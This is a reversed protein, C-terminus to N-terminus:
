DPFSPHHSSPRLLGAASLLPFGPAIRGETTFSLVRRISICHHGDRGVSCDTKAFLIDSAVRCAPAETFLAPATASQNIFLISVM